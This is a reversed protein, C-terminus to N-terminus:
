FFKMVWLFKRWLVCYKIVRNLWSLGISLYQRYTILKCMKNYEEDFTTIINIVFFSKRSEYSISYTFHLRWFIFFRIVYKEKVIEKEYRKAWRWLRQSETIEIITYSVETLNMLRSIIILLIRDSNFKFNIGFIGISSKKEERNIM